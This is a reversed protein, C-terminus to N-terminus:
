KKPQQQLHLWTNLIQADTPEDVGQKKFAAKIADRQASPIDGPKASIAPATYTTFWGKLQANTAFLKDIAAATQADDFKKGADRQMAMLQTDVFRRIAGVRAADNGGDDKPSPDIRLERLRQDLANKIASSNLDGPGNSGTPNLLKAREAAFHKYDGESLQTRMAYLQAESMTRLTNPDSLRLYVAPNTSDDGKAVRAGFNLVDDVKEPAFQTLNARVSAPLEGFKGGNAVLLQMAQATVEEARQKQAKQQDEFRQTVQDKATKIALASANPGLAREAQDHLQALTPKAPTGAGAGFQGGVAQVYNRTEAPLNALWDGAPGAKKEAERVAGPGANYAALAKNVDGAFEKVMAGLYDRGVRALEDPSDNQAPRVGYGPDRATTPLVQMEGQAGKPSTLLGGGPAYRKGGSEQGLVLSVLRSFDNPVIAPAAAEFVQNGVTMGQRADYDKTLRGQVELVDKATMQGAYKKFYAMAPNVAGQELLYKVANGHADSVAEAAKEQAWTASKGQMQASGPVFSGDERQGGLIAARIRTVQQDVNKEDLPALALASKANSVTGDLVSLNYDKQQATEYTLAHGYFTTVVNNVKAAFLAKQRDNDLTGAIKSVQDELKQRYEDALPLGSARKLADYGTQTTFGDKPDHQLRLALEQTQNLADDVRLANAQDLQQRRIAQLQTGAGLSAEGMQALDRGASGLLEPSAVSSQRVAPLGQDAVTPGTSVPVRPM